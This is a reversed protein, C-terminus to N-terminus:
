YDAELQGTAKMEKVLRQFIPHESMQGAAKHLRLGEQVVALNHRRYDDMAPRRSSVDKGLHFTLHVDNFEKFNEATLLVNLLLVRGINQAGLCAHALQMRQLADRRFVFCDWGRCREGLETWIMPLDAVSQYHEPVTRRVITLGDFGQDILWNVTVYFNPQLGIDVNTFILYEADAATYLRSLIDIILPLKRALEFQGIDLTSRELLPTHIFDEPALPADEAYYTSYLKVELGNNQAAFRRAVRMTEFTVPQAAFLHSTEPVVVPSVIHALTRM